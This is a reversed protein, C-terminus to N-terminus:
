LAMAEAMADTFRRTAATHLQRDREDRSRRRGQLRPCPRAQLPRARRAKAESVRGAAFLRHERRAVAGCSHNTGRRKQNEGTRDNFEEKPGVMCADPRYKCPGLAFTLLLQALFWM